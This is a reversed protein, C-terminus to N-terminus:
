IFVPHVNFLPVVKLGELKSPFHVLCSFIKYAYGPFSYINNLIAQLWFCSVSVVYSGTELIFQRKVKHENHKSWAKREILWYMGYVHTLDVKSRMADFYEQNSSYKAQVWFTKGCSAHVM